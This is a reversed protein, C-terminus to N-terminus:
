LSLNVLAKSLKVLFTLIAFKYNCCSLQTIQKTLDKLKSWFKNFNSSMTENLGLVCVQLLQSWDFKMCTLIEFTEEFTLLAYQFKPCIEYSSKPNLVPQFQMASTTIHHKGAQTVSEFLFIWKSIRKNMKFQDDFQRDSWINGQM